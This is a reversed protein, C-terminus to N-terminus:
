KIKKRGKIVYIKNEVKKVYIKGNQVRQKCLENYQKTNKIYKICMQNKRKEKM